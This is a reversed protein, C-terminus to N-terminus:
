ATVYVGDVTSYIPTYKISQTVTVAASTTSEYQTFATATEQQVESHGITSDTYYDTYETATGKVLVSNFTTTANTGQYNSVTMNSSVFILTDNQQESTTANVVSYSNIFRGSYSSKTESATIEYGYDFDATSSIFTEALTASDTYTDTYMTESKSVTCMTSDNYTAVTETAYNRFNLTSTLGIRYIFRDTTSNFALSSTKTYAYSNTDYRTSYSFTYSTALATTYNKLTSSVQDEYKWISDVNYEYYYNQVGYKDYLNAYSSSKILDSIRATTGYESTNYESSSSSNIWNEYSGSESATFTGTYTGYYQDAVTIGPNTFSYFRTSTIMAYTTSYYSNSISDKYSSTSVMTNSASVERSVSASTLPSVKAYDALSATTVAGPYGFSKYTASFDVYNDNYWDQGTTTIVIASNVWSTTSINNGILSGYFTTLYTYNNKDIVTEAVQYNSSTSSAQVSITTVDRESYTSSAIVEIDTFYDLYKRVRATTYSSSTVNSFSASTSLATELIVPLTETISTRGALSSTKVTGTTYLASFSGSAANNTTANVHNQTYGTYVIKASVTTSNRNIYVYSANIYGNSSTVEMSELHSELTTTRTEKGISLRSIYAGDNSVTYSSVGYTSNWSSYSSSFVEVKKNLFESVEDNVPIWSSFKETERYTGAISAYFGNGDTDTVYKRAAVTSTYVYLSGNHENECIIPYKGATLTVPYSSLYTDKPFTDLFVHEADDDQYSALIYSNSQYGQATTVVDVLYSTYTTALLINNVSNSTAYYLGIHPIGQSDLSKSSVYTQPSTLQAASTAGITNSESYLKLMFSFTDTTNTNNFLYFTSVSGQISFATYATTPPNDWCSATYSQLNSDYVYDAGYGYTSSFSTQTGTFTEDFLSEDIRTCYYDGALLGTTITLGVDTRTAPGDYAVDWYALKITTTVTSGSDLFTATSSRTYGHIDSNTKSYIIYPDTKLAKGPLTYVTNYAATSNFFKFRTEYFDYGQVVNSIAKNHYARRFTGTDNTSLFSVSVM